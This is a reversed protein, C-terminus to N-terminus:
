AARAPERVVAAKEAKLRALEARHAARAKKAVGPALGIVRRGQKFFPGVVMSAREAKAQAKRRRRVQANHSM